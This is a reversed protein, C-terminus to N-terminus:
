DDYSPLDRHHCCPKAFKATVEAAAGFSCKLPRHRRWLVRLPVAGEHAEM